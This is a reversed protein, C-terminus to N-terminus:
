WDFGESKIPGAPLKAAKAKGDASKAPRAREGAEFRARQERLAQVARDRQERTLTSPDRSLLESISSVSAESLANSQPIEGM